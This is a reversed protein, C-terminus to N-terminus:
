NPFFLDNGSVTVCFILVRPRDSLCADFRLPALLTKISPCLSICCVEHADSGLFPVSSSPGHRRAPFFSMFSMLFSCSNGWSFRMLSSPVDRLLDWSIHSTLFLQHCFLNCETTLASPWQWRFFAPSLLPSREDVLQFFVWTPRPGMSSLLV